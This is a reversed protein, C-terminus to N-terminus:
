RGINESKYKTKSNINLTSVSLYNESKFGFDKRRIKAVPEGDKYAVLGEWQFDEFLKQFYEYPNKEWGDINYDLKSSQHHVWLHGKQNHPNGQIKEGICEYTGDIPNKIEKFGEYIYKHEPNDVSVPIWHPWHGSKEDAEQCAIAGKPIKDQLEELTYKKIIKGRKRKLTKVDYRCYPKGNKIMCSTGDIKLKFKDINNFVPIGPVVRSLDNENKPLLTPIKKM